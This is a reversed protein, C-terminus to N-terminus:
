RDFILYRLFRIAAFALLPLVVAVQWRPLDYFPRSRPPESEEQPAEYPNEDMPSGGTDYTSFLLWSSLPFLGASCALKQNTLCRELQRVLLRPVVTAGRLSSGGRLWYSPNVCPKPGLVSCRQRYHRLSCPEAWRRLRSSGVFESRM